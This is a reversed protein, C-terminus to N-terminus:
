ASKKFVTEATKAVLDNVPKYGAKSGDIALITVERVQGLSREISARLADRQIDFSETLSEAALVDRLTKFTEEANVQANELVKLIVANQSKNLLESTEVIATTTALLSARAKETMSKVDDQVEPKKETKTKTTKTTM